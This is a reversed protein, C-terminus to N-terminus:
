TIRRSQRGQGFPTVSPLESFRVKDNPHWLAVGESRVAGIHETIEHYRDRKGRGPVDVRHLKLRIVGHDEMVGDDADIARSGRPTEVLFIRFGTKVAHKGFPDLTRGAIEKPPGGAPPRDDLSVIHGPRQL